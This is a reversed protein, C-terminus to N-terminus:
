TNKDNKRRVITTVNEFSDLTFILSNEESVFSPDESLNLESLLKNLDNNSLYNCFGDGTVNTLELITEGNIADTIQSTPMISVSIYLFDNRFSIHIMRGDKLSGEWQSPCTDSTRSLIKPDIKLSTAM